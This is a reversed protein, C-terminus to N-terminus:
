SNILVWVKVNIFCLKRKAKWEFMVSSLMEFSNLVFTSKCEQCVTLTESRVKDEACSLSSTFDFRLASAFINRVIHRAESLYLMMHCKYTKRCERYDFLLLCQNGKLMQFNSPAFTQRSCVSQRPTDHTSSTHKLHFMVTRNTQVPENPIHGPPFRTTFLLSHTHTHTYQASLPKGLKDSRILPWYM